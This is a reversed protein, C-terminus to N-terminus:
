KQGMCSNRINVSVTQFASPPLALYFLRNANPGSEFKSMEQNLKEFDTRSDYAGAVYHNMKWFDEYRAEEDPRVKLYPACKERIQQVTISSRAYGFFTTRKPLM